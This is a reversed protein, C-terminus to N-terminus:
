HILLSCRLYSFLPFTPVKYLKRISDNLQAHKLFPQLFLLLAIVLRHMYPWGKQSKLLLLQPMFCRHSILQLWAFAFGPVVSPQLILYVQSYAGLLPTMAPNPEQQVDPVGLDQALSSLLRFYPRQDFPQKNTKKTEHDELLTRAVANLIRSLLNVRVTMDGAEKDALRVLLLFLKSLADVVTYTLASAPSDGGQPQPTQQASNLCAEACLETAIRFFRDAAEETKLVGYQHMLQLYQGFVQDNTSTWVRLWRELLVTVHERVSADRAAAVAATAGVPQGQQQGSAVKQEEKSAALTRLDTLWKQLQKRVATNVPRMKSVTEFTSAFEYTAALGEALCQRVFSLALEVWVMNRGADMYIAFYTDVEQSRILKVRLLLILIARHMKRSTEDQPNFAAYHSLWSVIDPAFKKAGGCADRLAEIIGVMVELRLTDLVNVSEVMRKFLNECFTMATENRVTPQTRQTVMVLERLLVLIEHDAALMAISIDRGPAQLLVAKLSMDIRASLHQYGELAQSMTLSPASTASPPLSTMQQPGQGQMGSSAPSSTVSTSQQQQQQQQQAAVAMARARQFGEYVLLQQPHLGGMNPKLADPLERPYKPGPKTTTDVFAQNAERSKRRSQIAVALSEDVDRIAKETSAKEILMCGLELNDNSCVLVIQEILSQDSTVQQLLSRLHNGISVRLPEKCTVLALSGALNSIMLHAGNRLQQENPETSFDKLILQKTTVSAITVSREVVPQIIERIARDVALSVLRRQAPNTAFFQLSPNITVYAALNPIVTQEQSGAGAGAVEGPQKNAEDVGADEARQPMTIGQQITQMAAASTVPSNGSMPSQSNSAPAAAVAKVNFDPNRSDKIPVPITTLQSTRQIDEIKININKCLVQVEFKINMKLDETEYMERLVGLLAMLWPNPPRFVKSDRAGEIIRAVFSCVAILRGTGYGWFLLEKLNVRRQLLPKNRALTTQGLWIGLNRLLSRESSSTTINPSQLLKTVNHYVSDLVVKSLNSSNIADLVTLYMSHLNPQTSIRKVVLYNAFWNFHDNTLLNRLEVSKAECNSKAINNVIFHIQDRISEPPLTTNLVDVNVAAMREIVSKPRFVEKEIVELAAVPLLLTPQTRVMIDLDVSAALQAMMSAGQPPSMGETPNVNFDLPSPTSSRNLSSLSLAPPVLTFASGHLMMLETDSLPLMKSEHSSLNLGSLQQSLASTSTTPSSDLVVPMVRNPTAGKRPDPRSELSGLGMDAGMLMQDSEMSGNIAGLNPQAPSTSPLPNNIARQADNFLDPCHRTLHPIQVLHSCYQPWEGLRPRFQELSIKGFRFMKENSDSAEPDKRLAELVYRLAIGLTISSILQHQILTGFLRGTVLLEKDPYKHFFRYEDFLNHIMCRFVEQERVNTSSKFQKLLQIVDSITIDSTYIKQFYANAEEEVEDSEPGNHLRPIDQGISSGMESGADAAVEGSLIQNGLLINQQQQAMLASLARVEDVSVISPYVQAARLLVAFSEVSLLGGDSAATRLTHANSEAFAIFSRVTQPNRDLANMIKEELNLEGKDAKVCWYGLLEESLCDEEVRHIIAPGLSKLRSDIDVMEQKSSARKLAIRTLLIVLDPNVSQLKMMVAMSTPRSGPLGTFMPLTRRLVEARVGSVPDQVQALGVAIYEPYTAAANILAETVELALGSHALGIFSSYLSLCMWSYNPPFPVEGPIRQDQSALASFDVVSRPANASLVLLALQAARNDWLNMLGAGPLPCESIRSFLRVLRQFDDESRISLLPQDLKTTVKTWNLGRCDESLVEGIVDTNWQTSSDTADGLDSLRNRALVSVIIEAVQEEDLAIGIDRLVQRFAEASASYQVGFDGLISAVSMRQRTSASLAQAMDLDADATPSGGKLTAVVKSLEPHANVLAMFVGSIETALLDQSLSFYLFLLDEEV